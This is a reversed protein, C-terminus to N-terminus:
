DQLSPSEQNIPMWSPRMKKDLLKNRFLRWRGTNELISNILVSRIKRYKEADILKEQAAKDLTELMYIRQMLRNASSGELSGLLLNSGSVYQKQQQGPHQRIKVLPRHIYCIGNLLAARFPLIWDTTIASQEPNLGGFVDFVDRTWALAAGWLSENWGERALALLGNDPKVDPELTTKGTKGSADMLLANSCIMSAGSQQWASVIAAVRDPSSIDDGHAIVVLEGSALEMLKNIHRIGLNEDNRNVHVEHPGSYGQLRDQIIEYTRDTSADDSILIELNSYTQNLLGKVAQGIYAEQRYAPLAITVRPTKQQEARM